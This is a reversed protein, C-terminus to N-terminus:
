PEMKEGKFYPIPLEQQPVASVFGVLFWSTESEISGQGRKTPQPDLMATLQPTPRCSYSGNFGQSGGYAM